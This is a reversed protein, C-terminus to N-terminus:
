LEANDVWERMIMVGGDWSTAFPEYESKAGGWAENLAVVPLVWRVPHRDYKFCLAPMFGDEVSRCVQEWWDDRFWTGSGNVAYRKCEIQFPPLVLDSCDAVQYQDLNRRLPTDLGLAETLENAVWREFAAGKARQSAGM